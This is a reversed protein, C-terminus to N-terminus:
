VAKRGTGVALSAALGPGQPERIGESLAEPSATIRLARGTEKGGVMGTDTPQLINAYKSWEPAAAQFLIVRLIV